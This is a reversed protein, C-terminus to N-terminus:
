NRNDIAASVLFNWCQSMPFSVLHIKAAMELETMRDTGRALGASQKGLRGLSYIQVAHIEGFVSLMYVIQGPRM